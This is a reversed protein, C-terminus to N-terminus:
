TQYSLIYGIDEVQSTTYPNADHSTTGLLHTSLGRHTELDSLKKCQAVTLVSALLQTKDTNKKRKLILLWPLWRPLVAHASARHRCRTAKCSAM